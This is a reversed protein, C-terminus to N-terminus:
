IHVVDSIRKCEYEPRLRERRQKSDGLADYEYQRAKSHEGAPAPGVTERMDNQSYSKIVTGGGADQTVLPRNLADYTQTTSPTSPCPTNANVACAISTSYPRGKTDYGVAVTDYLTSAPAQQRQSRAQRGLGDLYEVRQVVSAGNAVTMLTQDYASTGSGNFTGYTYTTTNQVPDRTSKPRWYPDAGNLLFDHVTVQGNADIESTEVGGNCDWTYQTKLVDSSTVTKSNLTAFFPNCGTYSFSTVAGNVDTATSLTGNPNYTASSTLWTRGTWRSTVTANGHIDRTYRTETSMNVGDGSVVDCVASYIYYYPALSVCSSGGWSGYATTSKQLVPGPSGHGWDYSDQELMLEHVPEYKIDTESVLGSLNPLGVYATKESIESTGSVSPTGTGTACNALNTNGNYCTVTTRLITGSSDSEQKQVQFAGHGSPVFRYETSNGEPDTVTTTTYASTGQALTRTYTWTGDYTTRTITAPSGDKCNIGNSGGSYGYSIVGGTPLTLSALRGTTYGSGYGPTQEYAILLRTSDPFTIATPLTLSSTGTADLVTGLPGGPCAFATAFKYTTYGVTYQVSNGAADNYSFSTPIQSVSTNVCSQVGGSPCGFLIVNFISTSTSTLATTGLSDTYVDTIVCSSVCGPPAWTTTPQPKWTNGNTDTVTTGDTYVGHKDYIRASAIAGNKATSGIVSVTYGSGDITTDTFSHILVGACDGSSMGAHGIGGVYHVGDDSSVVRFNFYSTLTSGDQCTSTTTDYSLTTGAMGGLPYSSEGPVQSNFTTGFIVWQSNGLSNPPYAILSLQQSSVFSFPLPGVKDRIPLQLSLSLDGLNILDYKGAAVTQFPYNGVTQGSGVIDLLFILFTLLSLRIATLEPPLRRVIKPSPMTMTAAGRSQHNPHSPSLLEFVRDWNLTKDVDRACSSKVRKHRTTLQSYRTTVFESCAHFASTPVIRVLESVSWAQL